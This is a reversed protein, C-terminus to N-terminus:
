QGGEQRQLQYISLAHLFIAFEEDLNGLSHHEFAGTERDLRVICAQEIVGQQEQWLNRYAAIQYRMEPYIGSGTKFDVLWLGGAPSSVVWDLTGGYRYTESVLPREVAVGRLRKDQVWELWALYSTEAKGIQEATYTTTDPKEGKLDCMILYHALTGISAAQERVKRYDLGETGLKWAWHILAPKALIGLVTTVSPVKTGDALKYITHIKIGAM